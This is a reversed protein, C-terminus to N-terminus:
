VLRGVSYASEAGPGQEILDAALKGVGYSATIGHGGLGAVHFLREERPDHGIVFNRDPAFTRQGVWQNLISIDALAPQLREIKEALEMIRDPDESYDGPPAEVEECTSTLIGGSEPRFYFGEQPYWVVPWRPDVMAMPTTCYITRKLPRLPLGGLEGAWPGAANVLLGCNLTGRSTEVRMGDGDREFSLLKTNFRVEQGRLYGDLLAAVDAVGCQEFWTGKGCPLSHRDGIEEDGEGSLWLGCRDYAALEGERLFAAGQEMVPRIVEEVHVERIIAANRGTSHVGPSDEQELLVVRGLRRGNLHHATAAGAIGAGIILIDADVSPMVDVALPFAFSGSQGNGSKQGQFSANYRSGASL